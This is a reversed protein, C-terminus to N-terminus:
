PKCGLQRKKANEFYSLEGPCTLRADPLKTGAKATCTFAGTKRNASKPVLTWDPPCQSAPAPAAQKGAVAAATAVPAAPAVVRLTAGQNKGGCKMTMGQTKPEAKVRFEGAKAYQRAVVLPVDKQQNIKYDQTNGDGFHVRLGCNIGGSVDFNVTIKVNDGPRVQAPEVKIGAVLQGAAPIPLLAATAIALIRHLM